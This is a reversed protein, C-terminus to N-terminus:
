DPYGLFSSLKMKIMLKVKRLLQVFQDDTLPICFSELTRKFESQTITHTKEADFTQFAQCVFLTCVLVHVNIHM